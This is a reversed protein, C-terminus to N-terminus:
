AKRRKGSFILWGGLIALGAFYLNKSDMGGVM